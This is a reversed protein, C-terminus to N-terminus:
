PEEELEYFLKGCKDCKDEGFKLNYHCYPCFDKRERLMKLRLERREQARLFEGDSVGPSGLLFGFIAGLYHIFSEWKGWSKLTFYLLTVFLCVIGSWKLVALVRDYEPM